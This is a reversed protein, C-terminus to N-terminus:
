TRFIGSEYFDMMREAQTAVDFGCTRLDEIAEKASRQRDEMNETKIQECIRDISGAWLAAERQLSQYSVLPTCAVEKTITDSLLCPLGAAQAEVVCGPLGEYRSPFLFFDMAAYFPAVEEQEGAFIVDKTLSLEQVLKRTEKELAGGAGVLLLKPHKQPNQRCVEKFVALLFAHNKAYHFRGVHGIVFADTVGLQQRYAARKQLDFRYRAINIANPIIQVTGAQIRRRGYVAEGAKASCAFAYDCSKTRRLPLRLMRTLLGKMGPDTGASRAHAITIPIGAKKALPLYIAATSTMHGQIVQWTNGHEALLRRWAKRYRGATNKRFRPLVYIKGGRARVQEDFYEPKRQQWLPVQSDAQPDCHVAFDFQVRNTDIQAYLEMIRSEAGGHGLSGLVHLVRIPSRMDSEKEPM